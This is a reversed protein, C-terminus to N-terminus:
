KNIKLLLNSDERLRPVSCSNRGSQEIGSFKQNNYIMQPKSRNYFNPTVVMSDSKRMKMNNINREKQFKTDIYDNVYVLAVKENSNNYLIYEQKASSLGSITFDKSNENSSKKSIGKFNNIHTNKNNKIQFYHQKKAWFNNKLYSSLPRIKSKTFIEATKEKIEDATLADDLSILKSFQELKYQDKDFQKALLRQNIKQYMKNQIEPNFKIPFAHSSYFNNNGDYIVSINAGDFTSMQSSSYGKKTAEDYLLDKQSLNRQIKSNKSLRSKQLFYNNKIKNKSSLYVGHILQDKSNSPRLMHASMARINKINNNKIKNKQFQASFIRKQNYNQINTNNIATNDNSIIKKNQLDINNNIKSFTENIINENLEDIRTNNNNKNKKNNIMKQENIIDELLEIRKFIALDPDNRDYKDLNLNQKQNQINNKKLNKKTKMKTIENKQINKNNVTNDVKKTNPIENGIPKNSNKYIKKHKPFYDENKEDYIQNYISSMLPQINHVYKSSSLYQKEIFINNGKKKMQEQYYERIKDQEINQKQSTKIQRFLKASKCRKKAKLIPMRELFEKFDIKYYDNFDNSFYFIDNTSGKFPMQQIKIVSPSNGPIPPPLYKKMEEDSLNVLIIPHKQKKENKQNDKQEENKQKQMKINNSSTVYSSIPISQNFLNNWQYIDINKNQSELLSIKDLKKKRQSLLEKIKNAEEKLEEYVEQNGSVKILGDIIDVNSNSNSDDNKLDDTNNEKKNPHFNKNNNNYDKSNKKPHSLM